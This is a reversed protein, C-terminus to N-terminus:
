TSRCQSGGPTIRTFPIDAETLLQEFAPADSAPVEARGPTFFDGANTLVGLRLAALCFATGGRYVIVAM